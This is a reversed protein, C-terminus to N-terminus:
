TCNGGLKNEHLTVVGDGNRDYRQFQGQTPVPFKEQRVKDSFKAQINKTPIIKVKTDTSVACAWIEGM